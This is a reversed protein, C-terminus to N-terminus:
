PAAGAAPATFPAIEPRPLPQEGRSGDDLRLWTAFDSGDEHLRILRAGRLFGERGYTNYGSARGYCLRIAHLRGQYDNVHDHGCFVGRVGGALHMAAFLGTNISPCCVDEHKEGVCGGLRWVEDFEPLPIHLFVLVPAGPPQRQRAAALTRTFWRVQDPRVWGHGGIATEAYSNTDLCCLLAATGPGQNPGVRLLFNGLGSVTAPGPRTLCGPISRQIAMLEPRSASGGEDDHNGFVAAWPLRRRTLPATAMRWAAVADRCDPGLVDGTFLALDPQELDLVQEMLATTRRDDATGNEFHTDTFQAITFSGDAHCRLPTKM